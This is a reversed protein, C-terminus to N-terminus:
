STCSGMKLGLRCNDFMLLPKRGNVPFFKLPPKRGQLEFRSRGHESTLCVPFAAVTQKIKPNRKGKRYHQSCGFGDGNNERTEAKPALLPPITRRRHSRYQQPTACGLYRSTGLMLWVCGCPASLGNYKIRWYAFFPFLERARRKNAIDNQSTLCTWSSPKRSVSCRPPSTHSQWTTPPWLGGGRTFVRVEISPHLQSSKFFIRSLCLGANCFLYAQVVFFTVSCASYKKTFTSFVQLTLWQLYESQINSTKAHLSTCCCVAVDAPIRYSGYHDPSHM